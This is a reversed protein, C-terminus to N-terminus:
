IFNENLTEARQYAAATIEKPFGVYDLLKIANRTNSVGEKLKYDFSLGETSNIDESFYYFEYHDKLMESLERDHTAVICIADKSNIYSLIEASSSIREIPNTGRFIEDIPCFVPIDNDLAKIIRLISEAEALYYSKGENIDDKPSISSVLNLFCAEYEKAFVFNFTQALLINTSIMRLFTSKGSMNTGTLVIGNKEITVSNEVPKKLLPHIGDIIKISTKDTFKPSTIKSINSEKYSAISILADIEGVLYYLTLLKDENELLYGSIKYYTTVELLFPVALYELLGAFGTIVKIFKTSRDISKVEKINLTSKLKKTYPSLTLNDKKSLKYAADLLNRLCVIGTAKVNNKEKDTIYINLNILIAIGIILRPEKLIITLIILLLPLLQGIFTYFYFKFKSVSLLGELMEILRNNSDFGMNFLIYRLDGSLKKNERFLNIYKEREELKDRDMLPNRLMSYLVAEGSSTYTRDLEKFVDDMMLDNWTNDDLTYENKYSLDFLTRINKFIRKRDKPQTFDTTILKKIPNMM